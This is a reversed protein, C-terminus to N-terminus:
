DATKKTTKKATKKATKKTTKKKSATTATKKKSATTTTKKKSATTTTKKKTSTVGNEANMERWQEITVDTIDAKEVLVDGAKEHRLTEELEGMRGASTLETRLQDPRHGRQIAISAIRGNIESESVEIAQDKSLRRLLFYTKLRKRAVEQAESRLEAIRVDVEDQPVGRHLLEMEQQELLRAAQRGAMAEPLEFDVQESFQKTAQDRLAAAQQQDRRQELALQIQERLVAESALGYADVIQQIEAPHIRHADKINFTILIAAGRLEEQEHAEPGTTEILIEDGTKKGAFLDVLNEIMLGLLPGDKEDRPLLVPVSDHSFFPKEADKITASVRGVIRDGHGIGDNIQEASGSQLAQRELEEDIHKDNIELLPRQLKLGDIAPLTFDPTVEVTVSFVLPKGDEIVLEKMSDDPEPEGVPELENAELAKSYADAIVQNKTEDRMATGFRKELLKAPVHGKRFGPVQAQQSMASLSDQMKDQIAEASVTITLRKRAPGQDEIKVEPISTDNTASTSETTPADTM